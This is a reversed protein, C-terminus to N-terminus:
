LLLIKILYFDSQCSQYIQHILFFSEDGGCSKIWMESETGMELLNRNNLKNNNKKKKSKMLSDRTDKGKRSADLCSSLSISGHNEEKSM